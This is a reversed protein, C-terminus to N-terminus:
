NVALLIMKQGTGMSNEKMGKILTLAKFSHFLFVVYRTLLVSYANNQTNATTIICIAKGFLWLGFSLTYILLFQTKAM